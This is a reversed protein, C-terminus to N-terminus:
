RTSVTMGPQGINTSISQLSTLAGSSAAVNYLDIKNGYTDAVYAVSGMVSNNSLYIDNPGSDTTVPTGSSVLAGSSMTFSFLSNSTFASALVFQSAPDVAVGSGGATNALPYTYLMNLIGTSPDFKFTNLSNVTGSNGVYLYTGSSDFNMGDPSSNAIAPTTMVYTVSGDFNLSWTELNNDGLNDVILYKGSPDFLIRNPANGAPITALPTLAGTSTNVSFSSLTNSGYNTVYVFKGNPSVVLCAPQGATAYTGVLTLAGTSSNITFAAVGTSANGYNASFLFKNSPDVAIGYPHSGGSSFPSGTVETLKGTGPDQTFANIKDTSQDSVYFFSNYTFAGSMTSTQGDSNKVVVDAVGSGGSGTTCTIQTGDSSTSPNVCKIGGIKVTASVDFNSGTITVLAGAGPYSTPSISSTTPAPAAPTASPPSETVPSPNPGPSPSAISGGGSPGGSSTASPSCNQYGAMVISSFLAIAFLSKSKKSRM